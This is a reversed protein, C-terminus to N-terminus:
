VLKEFCLRLIQFFNVDALLQCILDLNRLFQVLDGFVDFRRPFIGELRATLCKAQLVLELNLNLIKGETM